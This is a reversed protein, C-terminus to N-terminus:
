HIMLVLRTRLASHLDQVMGRCSLGHLAVYTIKFPELKLIYRSFNREKLRTFDLSKNLPRKTEMRLALIKADALETLSLAFWPVPLVLRRDM